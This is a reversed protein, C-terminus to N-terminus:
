WGEDSRYSSKRDHKSRWRLEDAADAARKAETLAGLVRAWHSFPLEGAAIAQVTLLLKQEEYPSMGDRYPALVKWLEAVSPLSSARPERAIAAPRSPAPDPETRPYARPGVWGAASIRDEVDVGAAVGHRSPATSIETLAGAAAADLSADLKRKTRHARARAKARECAYREAPPPPTLSMRKAFPPQPQNIVADGGDM